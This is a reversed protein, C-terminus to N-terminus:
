LSCSGESSRLQPAYALKLIAVAPDSKSLEQTRDAVPTRGDVVEAGGETRTQVTDVESAM